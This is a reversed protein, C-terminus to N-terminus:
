RGAGTALANAMTILGQCTEYLFVASFPDLRLQEAQPLMTFRVNVVRAVRNIDGRLTRCAEYLIEPRLQAALSAIQPQTHPFAAGKSKNIADISLNVDDQISRLIEYTIAAPKNDRLENVQALQLM